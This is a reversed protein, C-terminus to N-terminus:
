RNRKRCSYFENFDLRLSLIKLYAKASDHLLKRFLQIEECFDAYIMEIDNVSEVSICSLFYFQNESDGEKMREQRDLEDFASKILIEQSFKFRLGLALMKHLRQLIKENEKNLFARELITQLFNSHASLIEDFNRAKEVSKLFCNWASEHIEVMLYHYLNNIFHQIELRLMQCKHLISRVDDLEQLKIFSSTEQYANMYFFLRKIKWLLKFIRTYESMAIENFISNLPLEVQYRLVFIDWGDDLASFEELRIFLKSIIDGDDNQANSARIANELISVLNHKHIKNTKDSLVLNLQDMLYHHFDGQGLLLYKRIAQAHDHLKYKNRLVGTLKFNTAESAQEVWIQLGPLDSLVPTRLPSQTKWDEGCRRRLFNISKGTVFIMNVLEEGLFGPVLDKILWYKDTWLLSEDNLDLNEEVFFEHFADNLEGEIMWSEIMQLYPVSVQQLLRSMLAKTGPHGTKSYSFLASLFNGGKLGEVADCVIGLWRLRELPESSWVQIQRLKASTQTELLAVFRYFEQLEMQLSSCFSQCIISPFDLNNQLFKELRKYLWGLESLTESLYKLPEPIEQKISFKDDLRSYTFFKGESGQFTFLVDRILSSELASSHIKLPEPMTQLIGGPIPLKVDDPIPLPLVLESQSNCLRCLMLFIENTKQMKRSKLKNSLNELRPYSKKVKRKVQLLLSDISSPSSSLKSSIIRQSYELYKELQAKPIFTLVLDKLLTSNNKCSKLDM